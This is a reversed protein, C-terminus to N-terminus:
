FTLGKAISNELSFVVLTWTHVHANAIVIYVNLRNWWGELLCTFLSKHELLANLSIWAHLLKESFIWEIYMWILLLSLMWSNWLLEWWTLKSCWILGKQIRWNCNPSSSFETEWEGNFLFSSPL